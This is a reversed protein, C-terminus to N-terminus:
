SGENSAPNCHLASRGIWKGTMKYIEYYLLWEATWPIITDHLHHTEKWPRERWDYLCLSNDSAYMHIASEYPVEPDVVWVKPDDGYCYALKIKYSPSLDTPRLKGTAGIRDGNVHAKFSPYKDRLQSSETVLWSYAAQRNKQIWPKGM